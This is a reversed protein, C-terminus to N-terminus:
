KLQDSPGPTEDLLRFISFSQTKLLCKKVLGRHREDENYIRFQERTLENTQDFLAISDVSRLRAFWIFVIFNVPSSANAFTAKIAASKSAFIGYDKRMYMCKFVKPVNDPRPTFLWKAVAQGDSAMASDDPPFETFLDDFFLSVVRLSACDNLLAPVSKRLGHFSKTSLKMGCINRGIMPWINRLIWELGRDNTLRIALNILCATFLTRFRHLFAIANQDTFRMEVSISLEMKKTKTGNKAIKRRIQIFKLAWKRAKFHEDVFQDFQHSILAIGLGLQYPPLFNFVDLWCDASLFIAKAMKEEGEKREDSM